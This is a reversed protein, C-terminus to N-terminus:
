PSSPLYGISISIFIEAVRRYIHCGYTLWLEEYKEMVTLPQQWPQEMGENRNM